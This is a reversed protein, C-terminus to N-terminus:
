PSSLRGILLYDVSLALEGLISAYLFLIGTVWAHTDM